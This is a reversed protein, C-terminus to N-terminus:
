SNPEGTQAAHVQILQELSVPFLTSIKFNRGKENVESGMKMM